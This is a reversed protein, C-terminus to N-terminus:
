IPLSTAVACTAAHALRLLCIDAHMTVKSYAAHCQVETVAISEACDAHDASASVSLDHRHVSVTYTSAAEQVCHAATLAWEPAVLSAGCTHSGGFQTLSLVFSYDHPTAESGGVILERRDLQRRELEGSSAARALERRASATTPPSCTVILLLTTARPWRSGPLPSCM